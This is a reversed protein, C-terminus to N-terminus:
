PCGLEADPKSGDSAYTYLYDNLDMLEEKSLGNLCGHKEAKANDRAFFRNWGDMTKSNACLVPSATIKSFCIVQVYIKTNLQDIQYPDLPSIRQNRLM